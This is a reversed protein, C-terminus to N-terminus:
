GRPTLSAIVEHLPGGGRGEGLRSRVLLVSDARWVPGAYVSLARVCGDVDPAADPRRRDARRVDGAGREGRRSGGPGGPGSRASLRALTLHARNRPRPDPPLGVDVGAATAAELIDALARADAATEGAAGVWLNRGAFSGAGRLLLRPAHLPAIREALAEALGPWAGDPVEGYFALTVHWQEPDTWRLGSRIEAPGRVADVARRLHALAEPSPELSAFLRM